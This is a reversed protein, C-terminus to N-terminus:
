KYKISILSNDEIASELIDNLMEQSWDSFTFIIVPNEGEDDKIIIKKIKKM